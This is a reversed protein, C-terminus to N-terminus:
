EIYHRYPAFDPGMNIQNIYMIATAVKQKLTDEDNQNNNVIILTQVTPYAEHFESLDDANILREFNSFSADEDATRMDFVRSAEEKDDARNIARQRRVDEDAQVYIFCVPTDSARECVDKLGVPDIIYIDSQAFQERTAFYQYGNIFTEAVRDTLKNAEEESLFIHNPENPFRMPRTAYSILQNGPLLHALYDKGTGSRGGVLVKSMLKEILMNDIWIKDYMQKKKDIM